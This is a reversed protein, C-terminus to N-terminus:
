QRATMSQLRNDSWTLYLVILSHLEVSNNKVAELKRWEPVVSVLEDIFLPKFVQRMRDKFDIYNEKSLGEPTTTSSDSDSHLEQPKSLGEPWCSSGRLDKGGGFEAIQTIEAFRNM